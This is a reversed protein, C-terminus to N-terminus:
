ESKSEESGHSSAASPPPAPTSNMSTTSATSSPATTSSTSSPAEEDKDLSAAEVNVYPNPQSQAKLLSALSATLRDARGDLSDLALNVSDIDKLMSSIDNIDFDANDFDPNTM